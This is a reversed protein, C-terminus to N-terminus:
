LYVALAMSCDDALLLAAALTTSALSPPAQTTLVYYGPHDDDEFHALLRARAKEDAGGLCAGLATSYLDPIGIGSEYSYGGGREFPALREDDVDLDGVIAEAALDVLTGGGNPMADAGPTGRGDDFHRTSWALLAQEQPTSPAITALRETAVSRPGEALSGRLDLRAAAYADGVTWESADGLYTNLFDEARTAAATDIAGCLELILLGRLNSAVDPPTTAGLWGRPTAGVTPDLSADAGSDDPDLRALLATLHPDIGAGESSVAAVTRAAYDDPLDVHVGAVDALARLDTLISLQAIGYGDDFVERLWGSVRSALEPHASRLAEPDAVAAARLDVLLQDVTSALPVDPILRPIDARAFERAGPPVPLKEGRLIEAALFTAYTTPEDGPEEAYGDGAEYAALVAVADASRDDGLARLGAWALRVAALKSFPETESIADPASLTDHFFDAVAELDVTSPVGVQGVAQVMWSTRYLSPSTTDYVDVFGGDGGTPSPPTSLANAQAILSECEAPIEVTSACAGLATAVAGASLAAVM